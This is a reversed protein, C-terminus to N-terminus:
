CKSETQSWVNLSNDNYRREWKWRVQIWKLDISSSNLYSKNSQITYM